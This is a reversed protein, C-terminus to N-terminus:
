ELRPLGVAIAYRSFSVLATSAGILLSIFLAAAAAFPVM